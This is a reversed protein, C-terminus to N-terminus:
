RSNCVAVAATQYVDRADLRIFYVGSVPAGLGRSNGWLAEYKGAAQWKNILSCARRGRCDYVVLQVNQGKDLNYGVTVTGNVVNNTIRLVRTSASGTMTPLAVSVGCPPNAFLARAETSYAGKDTLDVKLCGFYWERDTGAGSAQDDHGNYILFMRLRQNYRAVMAYVAAHLADAAQQYTMNTPFGYNNSLTRGNDTSIGWETIFMPITSSPAAGHAALQNIMRDMRAQWGPGYPHIVWGAVYSALDPVANFMGDVWASSGTNGDDAQCLLGVQPNATRIAIAAKKFQTAYQQGFAYYDGSPRKYSYSNENGFEIYRMALNGDSRGSWFSGGPGFESAWTGLNQAQGDSPIADFGALPSVRAGGSAIAGIMTRMSNAATGIGFETRINKAGLKSVTAAQDSNQCIGTELCSCAVTFFATSVFSLVIFAM